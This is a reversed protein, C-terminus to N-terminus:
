EVAGHFVSVVGLHVGDAAIPVAGDPGGKVAHFQEVLNHVPGGAEGFHSGVFQVWVAEVDITFSCVKFLDTSNMRTTRKGVTTAMQVGASVTHKGFVQEQILEM